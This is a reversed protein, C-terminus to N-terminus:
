TLGWGGGAQGEGHHTYFVACRACAVGFRGGAWYFLYFVFVISTVFMDPFLFLLFFGLIALLVFLWSPWSLVSKSVSWGVMVLLFPLHKRGEVQVWDM